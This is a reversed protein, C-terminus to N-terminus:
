AYRSMREPSSLLWPVVAVVGIGIVLLTTLLMGFQSRLFGRRAPRQTTGQSVDTM